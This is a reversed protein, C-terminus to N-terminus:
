QTNRLRTLLSLRTSHPRPREVPAQQAEPPGAPEERRGDDEEAPRRGREDNGAGEHEGPDDGVQPTSRGEILHIAPEGRQNGQGCPRGDHRPEGLHGRM